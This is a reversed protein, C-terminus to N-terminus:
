QILERSINDSVYCTSYGYKPISCFHSSQLFSMQPFLSKCTSISLAKNRLLQLHTPQANGRGLQGWGTIEIQRGELIEKATINIPLVKRGFEIKGEVRLLGINNACEPKNYREHMIIKNAQYFTGNLIINSGVMIDIETPDM